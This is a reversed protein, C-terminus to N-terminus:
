RGDPQQLSWFIRIDLIFFAVRGPDFTAENERFSIISILGATAQPDIIVRNQDTKVTKELRTKSNWVSVTM